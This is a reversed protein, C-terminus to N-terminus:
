IRSKPLSPTEEPAPSPAEPQLYYETLKDKLIELATEPDDARHFLGVDEPSITGYEVLADFNLVRDWYETGYLLLVV